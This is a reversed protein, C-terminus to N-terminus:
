RGRQFRHDAQDTRPGAAVACVERPSRAGPHRFRLPLLRFIALCSFAGPPSAFPFDSLGVPCAALLGASPAWLEAAPCAEPAAWGASAMASRFASWRLTSPRNASYSAAVEPLLSITRCIQVSNVTWVAM